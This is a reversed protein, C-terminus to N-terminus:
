IINIIALMPVNQNTRLLILFLFKFMSSEIDHIKHANSKSNNLIIGCIGVYIDEFSPNMLVLLKTSVINM